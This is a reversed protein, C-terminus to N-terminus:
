NCLKYGLAAGATVGGVIGVGPNVGDKGKNYSAMPAGGSVSPVMSMTSPTHTKTVVLAGAVGGILGGTTACVRPGMTTCGALSALALVAIIKNM